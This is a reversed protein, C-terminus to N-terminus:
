RAEFEDLCCFVNMLCPKRLAYFIQTGHRRMTLIGAHRLVALHSSVTSLDLDLLGALDAVCREGSSLADVLVLRNANALAKFVAASREFDAPSKPKAACTAPM